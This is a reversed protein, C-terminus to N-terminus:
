CRSRPAMATPILRATMPSSPRAPRQWLAGGGGPPSRGRDQLARDTTWQPRCWDGETARAALASEVDLEALRARGARHSRKRGSGRRAPPSLATMEIELARTGANLIRTELESLDLTTFRVANATTQRHIFRESLPPSLMKEAHTATTEIFYGLVNNHKIKLSQVGAEAIYDAQLKAIVGRGEDRLTRAADLDADHGPAIFGGDRAQLPPEAVLAADLMDRLTEHGLCDNRAEDVIQPLDAEPLLAAIVDAQALGDRLATLDRPGGRDLALRSLAREIDPCQRLAGRIDDRVRVNTVFHAVGDHRKGITKADTAPGSVRRELLRAGGATVTRDLVDLLSGQRGGTLSRTLELNRRTAMDIQM